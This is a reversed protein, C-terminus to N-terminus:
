DLARVDHASVFVDGANLRLLGGTVTPLGGDVLRVVVDTVRGLTNGAPGMVPQGLLKTLRVRSLMADYREDGAGAADRPKAAPVEPM